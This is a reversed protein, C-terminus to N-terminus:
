DTKFPHDQLWRSVQEASENPSPPPVVHAFFVFGVLWFLLFAVGSWNCWRLTTRHM